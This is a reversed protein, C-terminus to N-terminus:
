RSEAGDGSSEGLLREIRALREELESNRARLEEIEATREALLEQLGKAAALAVGATDSPTIHASDMGLGFERWFDEAFPGAHVQQSKDHVYTWRVLPLRTLRELVDAGSLSEINHKVARSSNQTLTGGIELNGSPDLNFNLDGLQWMRVRGDTSFQLERGGSGARNIGFGNPNVVELLWEEANAADTNSLRIRPQGDNELVLLDRGATAGTEEILVKAEGNSRKVHLPESPNATGIGVNDDPDIYLSNSSAGPRIRFPLTSGNTADRVFFNTENGAVDWTQPTFGSSGDQELRLTPTDGDKVHLEVVPTNTGFGVRGGDDLYLAHNIAGAEVSFPLRSNTTDKLRFVEQGGNSSDNAVLEWDNTPFSASISTDEFKIRLNNEKLRLTDFGFSEGNACDFGACISSQVILDDAIVQDAPSDLGGTRATPADLRPEIEGGDAVIAGGMVRFAGTQVLPEAPLRGIRRLEGGADEGRSRAEEYRERTAEDLAFTARVEWRYQGDVLRQGRAFPVTAAGGGAVEHRQAFGDPGTITVVWGDARQAPQFTLGSGSVTVRAVVPAEEAQEAQQAVALSGFSLILVSVAVSVVRRM